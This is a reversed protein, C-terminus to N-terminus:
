DCHLRIGPPDCVCLVHHCFSRIRYSRSGGCRRDSQEAMGIQFFRKPFAQAFLDIDTYKGLDATLGAIDPRIHGVEVLAQGFPKEAVAVGHAVAEPVSMAATFGREQIM